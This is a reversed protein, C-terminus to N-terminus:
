SKNAGYFRKLFIANRSAALISYEQVALFHLLWHAHSSRWCLTNHRWLIGVWERARAKGTVRASCINPWKGLAIRNMDMYLVAYM